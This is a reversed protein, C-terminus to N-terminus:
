CLIARAMRHKYWRFPGPVGTVHKYYIVPLDNTGTELINITFRDLEHEFETLAEAADNLPPAAAIPQEEWIDSRCLVTPWTPGVDANFFFINYTHFSLFDFLFKYFM